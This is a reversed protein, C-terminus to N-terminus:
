YGGDSWIPKQPGPVIDAIDPDLAPHLGGRQARAQEKEANRRAARDSKDQRQEAKAKERLRKNVTPRPKAM